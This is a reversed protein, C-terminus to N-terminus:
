LSLPLSKSVNQAIAEQITSNDYRTCAITKGRSMRQNGGQCPNDGYQM